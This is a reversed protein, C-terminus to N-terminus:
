RCDHLLDKNNVKLHEVEELNVIAFGACGGREEGNRGRKSEGRRRRRVDRGKADDDVAFQTHVGL